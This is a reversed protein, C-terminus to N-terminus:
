HKLEDLFVLQQQGPAGVLAVPRDPFMALLEDDSLVRISTGAITTPAAAAPARPFDEAAPDRRAQNVCMVLLATALMPAVAWAVVRGTARLRRTRRLVTLGAALSTERLRADDLVEALLPKENSPLMM